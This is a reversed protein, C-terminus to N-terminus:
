SCTQPQSLHIIPFPKGEGDTESRGTRVFGYKLYFGLALPNQENVDVDLRGKLSHAHDLLTRGIGQGKVAPDIFLMEVKNESLGIFGTLVGQADEAVWVEVAPLYNDRVLPEYYEIDAVTLFDHTAEVAARWIETLRHRDESVFPRIHM